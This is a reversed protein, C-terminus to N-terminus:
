SVGETEECKLSGFSIGGVEYMISLTRGALWRRKATYKALGEGYDTGRDKLAM